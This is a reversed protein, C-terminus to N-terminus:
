FSRRVSLLSRAFKAFGPFKVLLFTLWCNEGLVVDPGIVCYPGIITGTGIVARADVIASPHILVDSM